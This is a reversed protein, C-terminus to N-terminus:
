ADSMISPAKAAAVVIGSSINGNGKKSAEEGSEGAQHNRSAKAAMSKGNENRCAMGIAM